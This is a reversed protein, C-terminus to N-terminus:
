KFRERGVFRREIEWSAFVPGFEPQPSPGGGKLELVRSGFAEGHRKTRHRTRIM